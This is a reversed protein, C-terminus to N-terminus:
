AAMPDYFQIRADDGVSVIRENLGGGRAQSTNAFAVDWVAESHRDLTDICQRAGIDWIKVTRDSSCSAIIDGGSGGGSLGNLSSPPAAASLSTVKGSHGSLSAVITGGHARNDYVNIRGDEAGSYILFQNRQQSTQPASCAVARVPLAHGAFRHVMTATEVDFQAVMGNRFGAIISKGGDPTYSASMVMPQRSALAASSSSSGAINVMDTPALHAALQGSEVSWIGIGGNRSGSAIFKEDPSMVLKWIGQYGGNSSNGSGSTNAENRKSADRTDINRLMQGSVLDWVVVRQDLSASAALTGAKNIVVSTVGLRHPGSLTHILELTDTNWVRVSEDVSATVLRSADGAWAVSWIADDHANE